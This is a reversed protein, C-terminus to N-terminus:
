LADGEVLSRTTPRISSFSAKLRLFNQALVLGHRSLMRVPHCVNVYINLPLTKLANSHQM